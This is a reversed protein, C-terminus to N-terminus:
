IRTIGPKAAPEEGRMERKLERQAQEARDRMEQARIAQERAAQEPTPGSACGALVAGVLITLSLPLSCSKTM